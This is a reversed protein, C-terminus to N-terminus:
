CPLESLSGSRETGKHKEAEDARTIRNEVENKLQTVQELEIKVLRQQDVLEAKPEAAIKKAAKAAAISKTSAIQQQEAAALAAEPRQESIAADKM